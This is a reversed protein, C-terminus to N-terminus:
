LKEKEFPTHKVHAQIASNVFCTLPIRTHSAPQMRSFRSVNTPVLPHPLMKRWPSEFSDWLFAEVRCWSLKTVLGQVAEWHLKRGMRTCTGSHLSCSSCVARWLLWVTGSLLVFFVINSIFWKNMNFPHFKRQGGGSTRFTTIDTTTYLNVIGKSKPAFPLQWIPPLTDVFAPPKRRNRYPERCPFTSPPDRKRKWDQLRHGRFGWHLKYITPKSQKRFNRLSPTSVPPNSQTHM